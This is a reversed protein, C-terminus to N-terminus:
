THRRAATSNYRMVTFRDSFVQGVADPTERAKVLNILYPPQSSDESSSVADIVIFFVPIYVTDTFFSCAFHMGSGLKAETQGSIVFGRVKQVVEFNKTIGVLILTVLCSCSACCDDKMAVDLPPM